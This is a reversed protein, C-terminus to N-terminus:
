RHYMLFFDKQISIFAKLCPKEILPLNVGQPYIQGSKPYIKDAFNLVKVM